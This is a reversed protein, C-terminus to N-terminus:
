AARTASLQKWVLAPGPPCVPFTELELAAPECGAVGAGRVLWERVRVLGVAPGALRRRGVGVVM